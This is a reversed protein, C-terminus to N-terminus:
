HGRVGWASTRGFHGMGTTYFPICRARTSCQCQKRGGHVGCWQGKKSRQWSECSYAMCTIYDQDEWTSIIVVM